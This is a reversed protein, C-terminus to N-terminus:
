DCNTRAVMIGSYHASTLPLVLLTAPASANALKVLIHLHSITTSDPIDVFKLVLIIVLCWDLLSLQLGHLLRDLVWNSVGM